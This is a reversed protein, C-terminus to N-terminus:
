KEQSYQLTQISYQNANSWPGVTETLIGNM